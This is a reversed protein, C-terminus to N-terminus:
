SLAVVFAIATGGAHSLSVSWERLSLAEALARARGHLLLHPKGLEDSAVEVELCSVGGAAMHALGVGLAKAVAEKAAFRVALEAARGRCYSLEAPTYIRNLFRDGFRAAAAEIRPIEVIDVGTTLM